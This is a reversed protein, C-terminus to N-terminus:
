EQRLDFGARHLRMLDSHSVSAEWSQNILPQAVPQTKEALFRNLTEVIDTYRDRHCILTNGRMICWRLETWGYPVRREITYSGTIIAM